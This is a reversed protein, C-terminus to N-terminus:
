SNNADKFIRRGRGPKLGRDNPGIFLVIVAPGGLGVLNLYSFFVIVPTYRIQTITKKELLVHGYEQGLVEM